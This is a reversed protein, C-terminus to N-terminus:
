DEFVTLLIPSSSSSSLQQTHLSLQRHSDWCGQLFTKGRTPRYMSVFRCLGVRHFEGMTLQARDDRDKLSICFMKMDYKHCFAEWPSQKSDNCYSCSELIPIEHIELM